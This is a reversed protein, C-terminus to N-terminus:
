PWERTEVPEAPAPAPPDTIPRPRRRREKLPGDRSYGRPDLGLLPPKRERAHRTTLRDGRRAARLMSLALTAILIWAATLGLAFAIHSAEWRTARSCGVIPPTMPPDGPRDM